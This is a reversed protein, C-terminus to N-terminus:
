NFKLYFCAEFTKAREIPPDLGSDHGSVVEYQHNPLRFTRVSSHINARSVVNYTFEAESSRLRIAEM